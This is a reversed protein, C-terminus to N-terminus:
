EMPVLFWDRDVRQIVKPPVPPEGTLREIAWQCATQVSDTPPQRDFSNKELSPLASQAKMRGLSIAAMRRIRDDEVPLQMTDNLREELIKVVGAPQKGEYIMGLAWIASARAEPWVENPRRPVYRRLASDAQRYKQQGLLQHLQSLQHDTLVFLEDKRSPSSEEQNIYSVVGPLSEPVALKRLGWAANLFVEGRPHSLLGVLQVAAPKHDLETLLITAQELAGWEGFRLMRMTQGIVENKLEKRTALEKLLQRAQIRVYPHRYDLQDALLPLHADTPRLALVKVAQSRVKADPNALLKPLLPVLSDPDIEVLRAAASAVVAPEADQALRLLIAGAEKSQHRSLLGVAALRLPISRSSAALKEAEQELGETKIQGLALAAERRVADSQESRVIEL